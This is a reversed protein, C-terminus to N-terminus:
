RHSRSITGSNELSQMKRLLGVLLQVQLRNLLDDQTALLYNSSVVYLNWERKGM